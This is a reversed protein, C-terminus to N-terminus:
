DTNEDSLIGANLLTKLFAGVDAKATAEDIEYEELMKNILMEETAGDKLTNFLFAGSGNLTIIGNFSKAAEGIPVVINMNNMKKLIFGKKIKIM